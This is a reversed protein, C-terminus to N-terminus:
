PQLVTKLTTRDKAEAFETGIEALPLRRTILSALDLRSSDTIAAARRCDLPDHVAQGACAGDARDAITARKTHPLLRQVEEAAICRDIRALLGIAM